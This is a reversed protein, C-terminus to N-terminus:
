NLSRLKQMAAAAAYSRGGPGGVECSPDPLPPNRYNSVGKGGIGRYRPCPLPTTRFNVGTGGSGKQSLDPLPTNVLQFKNTAQQLFSHTINKSSYDPCYYHDSNSISHDSSMVAEKKKRVDGTGGVEAFRSDPLPSGNQTNCNNAGTGGAQDSGASPLPTREGGNGGTGGDQDSGLDPLPPNVTLLTVGKGGNQASGSIPLPPAVEKKNGRCAKAHNALQRGNQFNSNCFGCNFPLTLASSNEQLTTQIKWNEFDNKHCNQIHSNVRSKLFGKGAFVTEDCFRCFFLINTMTVPSKHSRILHKALSRENGSQSLAIFPCLQCKLGRPLPLPFSLQSGVTKYSLDAQELVGHNASPYLPSECDFFGQLQVNQGNGQGQGRGGGGGRGRTGWNNNNNYRNGNWRNGGGRGGGFGRGQGYM